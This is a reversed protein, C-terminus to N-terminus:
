LHVSQQLCVRRELLWLRSRGIIVSHWGKLNIERVPLLTPSTRQLRNDNTSYINNDAYGQVMM